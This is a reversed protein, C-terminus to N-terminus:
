LIKCSMISLISDPLPQESLTLGVYSFGHATAEAPMFVGEILNGHNKFFRSLRYDIIQDQLTEVWFHPYVTPHEPHAVSGAKLRCPIEARTLKAFILRSLGDCELHDLDEYAEFVAKSLFNELEGKDM